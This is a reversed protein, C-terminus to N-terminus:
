RPPSESTGATKLPALDREDKSYRRAEALFYERGLRRNVRSVRGLEAIAARAGETRGLVAARALGIGVNTPDEALARDLAARAQQVDGQRWRNLGLGAWAEGWHPRLALARREDQEARRLRDRGLASAGRSLRAWIQAREHHADALYPHWALVRDLRDLARRPDTEGRPTQMMCAGAVRWLSLLALLLLASVLVLSLRRGGIRRDESRPAAAIGLLCVFVLANAPLRLNFDLFSHVGLATAGALAGIALGLRVPDRGTRYRDLFGRLISWTLFALAGVGLLGGEALSELVDSEAHTSRVDGDNRKFPPIADAYAGFGSGLIPRSAALTLTSRYLDLRYFGSRDSAGHLVTAHHTRTASPVVALGFAILGAVVVVAAATAARGRPASHRPRGIWLLLLVAAGGLLAVVGGRSRSALHTAALALAVGVLGLSLPTPGQERRTLGLAWGAALFLGMEILGAFHNHNVYSGFPATFLSRAAGYITRPALSSQVVGFFGQVLIALLAVAALRTAFGRDRARDSVATLTALLAIQIVLAETTWVPAASARLLLQLCSVVPLAAAALALAPVGARRERSELFWLSAAVFLIAMLCYRAWDVAAGYAWPSLAIAALLLGEYALARRVTRSQDRM